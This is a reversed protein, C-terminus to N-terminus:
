NAIVTPPVASFLIIGRPGGLAGFLMQGIISKDVCVIVYGRAQGAAGAVFEEVLRSTRQGAGLIEVSEGVSEGDAKVVEVSLEADEAGPNFFALGTFLIGELVAVQSFIAKTFAQTQLLLAAVYQFTEPDGFIVDGIVGGGDAEVKLSGVFSGGPGQPAAALAGAFLQAADESLQGGAALVRNVPDGLDTGESDVATLTVNRSQDSTNILNVNTFVPLSGSDTAFQASFSQGASTGMAANLGLVSIAEGLGGGAMAAGPLLEVSQFGVAGMGRSVEVRVYGGSLSEGFIEGVTESLFADAAITRMAQLAPGQLGAPGSAVYTLEIDIEEPNPNLVSLRTRAPHGRFAAPGDFVRTFYLKQAQEPILVGGDLASLDGKGFQFFSAIDSSATTLRVWAPTPADEGFLDTLLSAQQSFPDLDITEPALGLFGRSGSDLAAALATGPGGKQLSLIGLNAEIMQDSNNTLAIGNFVDGNPLAPFYSTHLQTSEAFPPLSVLDSDQEGGGDLDIKVTGGALPTFIQQPRNGPNFNLFDLVSTVWPISIADAQGDGTVDVTVMDITMQLPMLTFRQPYSLRFGECIGNNDEDLLELTGDRIESFGQFPGSGTITENLDLELIQGNSNTASVLATQVFRIDLSGNGDGDFEDFDRVGAQFQGSSDKDRFFFRNREARASDWRSTHSVLIESSDSRDILFEFAPVDGPDPGNSNVDELPTTFFGLGPPPVLYDSTATSAPGRTQGHLRGGALGCGILLLVSLSAISPFRVDTKPM